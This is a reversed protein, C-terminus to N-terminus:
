VEQILHPILASGNPIVCASFIDPLWSGALELAERFSEAPTFGLRKVLASELETVAIIRHERAKQMTSIAILADADAHHVLRHYLSRWDASKAAHPNQDEASIGAADECFWSTLDASGLGRQCEAL